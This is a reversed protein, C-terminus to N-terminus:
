LGVGEPRGADVAATLWRSARGPADVHAQRVRVLGLRDDGVGGAEPDHDGVGHRRLCHHLEMVSMRVTREESRSRPETIIMAAAAATTIIRIAARATSMPRWARSLRLSRLTASRADRSVTRPSSSRLLQVASAM